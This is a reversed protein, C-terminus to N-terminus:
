RMNSYPPATAYTGVPGEEGPPGQLGQDGSVGARGTYGQNGDPGKVLTLNITQKPPDGVIEIKPNDGLLIPKNFLLSPPILKELANTQSEIENLTNTLSDIYDELVVDQNMEADDVMNDNAIGCKIQKEIPILLSNIFNLREQTLETPKPPVKSRFYFGANPNTRHWNSKIIDPSDVIGSNDKFIYGDTNFGICNSIDKCKNKFDTYNTWKIQGDIYSEPQFVIADNLKITLNQYFIYEGDSQLTGKVDFEETYNSKLFYMLIITSFFLLLLILLINGYKM